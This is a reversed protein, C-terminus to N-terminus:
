TAVINVFRQLAKASSWIRTKALPAKAANPIRAVLIPNEPIAIVDPLDPRVKAEIKTQSVLVGASGIPPRLLDRFETALTRAQNCEPRWLRWLM